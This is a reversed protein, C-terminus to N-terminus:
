RITRNAPGLRDIGARRPCMMMSFNTVSIIRLYIAGIRPAKLSETLSSKARDGEKLPFKNLINGLSARDIFSKSGIQVYGAGQLSAILLEIPVSKCLLAQM